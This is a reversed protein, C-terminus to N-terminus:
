IPYIPHSTGTTELSGMGSPGTVSAMLAAPIGTFPAITMSQIGFARVAIVSDDDDDFFQIDEKRVHPYMRCIEMVMQLKELTPDGSIHHFVSRINMDSLFSAAQANSSAVTLLHGAARLTLLFTCLSEEYVARRAPGLQWLYLTNDM